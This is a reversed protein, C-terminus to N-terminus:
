PVSTPAAPPGTTGSASPWPSCDNPSAPPWVSYPADATANWARRRQTHRLGVRDMSPSSRPIRPTPNRRLPRPPGLHRWTRHRVTRVGGRRLRKDGLVTMGARLPARALLAAAVGREGLKPEALCWATPMGDPTTLLYELSRANAHSHHRTPSTRCRRALTMSSFTM